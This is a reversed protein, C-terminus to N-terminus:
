TRSFPPTSSIRKNASELQIVEVEVEVQSENTQGFNCVRAQFHVFCECRLSAVATHDEVGCKLTIKWFHWLIQLTERKQDIVKEGDFSLSLTERDMSRGIIQNDDNKIKHQLVIIPENVERNDFTIECSNQLIQMGQMSEVKQLGSSPPWHTPRPCRFHLRFGPCWSELVNWSRLNCM